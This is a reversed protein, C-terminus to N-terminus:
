QVGGAAYALVMEQSLEHRELQKVLKGSKMVLVRDSMGILEPLDSSVLIIGIGSMTLSNMLKYIEAKAGIDIGRTPELLILIKPKTELMKALVVKQQNGGSLNSSLQRDSSVKIGLKAIQKEVKKKEKDGKIFCHEIIDDLSALSINERVDRVM